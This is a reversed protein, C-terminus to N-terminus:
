PMTPLGSDYWSNGVRRWEAEWHPCMSCVEEGQKETEDARRSAISPHSTSGLKDPSSSGWSKDKFRQCDSLWGTFESTACSARPSEMRCHLLSTRELLSPDRCSSSKTHNLVPPNPPM